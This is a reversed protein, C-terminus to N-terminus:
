GILNCCLGRRESTASRISSHTEREMSNNNNNNIVCQRDCIAFKMRMSQVNVFKVSIIFIGTFQLAKISTQSSTVADNM